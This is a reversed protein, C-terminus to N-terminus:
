EEDDYVHIHAIRDSFLSANANSCVAGFSADPFARRLGELAPVCLAADGVGDLRVLLIAERELM